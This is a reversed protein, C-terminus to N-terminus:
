RYLMELDAVTLIGEDEDWKPIKWGNEIWRYLICRFLCGDHGEDDGTDGAREAILGLPEVLEGPLLNALRGTIHIYTKESYLVTYEIIYVSCKNLYVNAM